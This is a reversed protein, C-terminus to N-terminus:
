WHKPPVQQRQRFCQYVEVLSCLTVVWLVAMKMNVAVLIKFEVHLVLNATLMKGDFHPSAITTGIKFAPLSWV